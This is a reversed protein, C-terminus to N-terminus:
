ALLPLDVPAPTAEPSNLSTDLLRPSSSLPEQCPNPESALTRSEITIAVLGDIPFLDLEDETINLSMKDHSHPFVGDLEVEYGYHTPHASFGFREARLGRIGTVSFERKM